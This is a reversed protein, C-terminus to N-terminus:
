SRISNHKGMNVSTNDVSIGICKTWPIGRSTLAQDMAEFIKAATGSGTGSTLCMDLFRTSVHGSTADFLRVTVPNMKQMGNDNSGDIALSFPEEKMQMM